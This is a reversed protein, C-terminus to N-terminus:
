DYSFSVSSTALKISKSETSELKLVFLLKNEQKALDLGNLSLVLQVNIRVGTTLTRQASMNQFM